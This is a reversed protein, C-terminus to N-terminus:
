SQSGDHDVTMTITTGDMKVIYHGGAEADDQIARAMAVLPGEGNDGITLVGMEKYIPFFVTRPTQLGDVDYYPSGETMRLSRDLNKSM